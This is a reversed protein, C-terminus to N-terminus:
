RKVEYLVDEGGTWTRVLRLRPHSVIGTHLDALEVPLDPELLVYRIGYRDAVTLLTEIGGNPLVAAPRSAYYWFAPPNGVM